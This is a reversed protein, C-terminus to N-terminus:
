GARTLVELRVPGRRGDAGGADPFRCWAALPGASPEVLVRVGEGSGAGPGAGADAVSEAFGAGGWGASGGVGGPRQYGSVDM